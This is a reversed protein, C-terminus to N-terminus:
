KGEGQIYGDEERNIAPLYLNDTLRMRSYPNDFGGFLFHKNQPRIKDWHEVMEIAGEKSYYGDILGTVEEVVIYSMSAKEKELATIRDAGERMLIAAQRARDHFGAIQRLFKKTNYKNVKDDPDTSPYPHLLDAARNILRSVLLKSAKSM